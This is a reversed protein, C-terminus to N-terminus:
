AELNFGFLVVGFYNYSGDLDNTLGRSGNKICKSLFWLFAFRAAGVVEDKEGWFIM